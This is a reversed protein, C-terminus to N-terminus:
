GNMWALDMGVVLETREAHHTNRMPIARVQLAYKRALAGVEECNDYTMIFDGRLACCKKFLLEHDIKSHTYLRTGANRGGATYPPDVFFVADARDRFNDMIAMGDGHVFKLKHRVLDISEIRKALTAPYWRSKLGKGAEGKKLIGAGAAMIGGHSTRNKLITKFARERRDKPPTNIERLVNEQSMQFQQIREALWAGDGSVITEWVSAVDADKEVMIVEEVLGEFISTLSAIGGGLFPEILIKPKPGHSRLWQRLHPIFWTKGGPYRFPSRQPVSAINVPHAPDVVSVDGVGLSPLENIHM